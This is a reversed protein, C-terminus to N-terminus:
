KRTSSAVGRVKALQIAYQGVSSSGSWIVITKDSTGETPFPLELRGPLYFAQAATTAAIGGFAAAEEHSIADPVKWVHKWGHTVYEAFAGNEPSRSGFLMGAVRDGVALGNKEAEPGAEAVVGSFDGTALRLAPAAFVVSGCVATSPAPRPRSLRSGTPALM